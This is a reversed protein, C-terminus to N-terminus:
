TDPSAEATLWALIDDLTARWSQRYNAVTYYGLNTIVEESVPRILWGRRLYDDVIQDWGIAIGRGALAAQIALTYNNFTAGRLEEFKKGHAQFFGNWDLWPQNESQVKLLRRKPLDDISHIPDSNEAFGPSCVPFGCENFLLGVEGDDWNGDGFRIAIEPDTNSLRQEQEVTRVVIEVDPNADQYLTLRPMLWYTALGYNAYITVRNPPASRDIARGAEVIELLGSIVAKYYLEGADTLIVSRHERAFLTAGLADELSKVQRSIAPQSVNLERAAATFSGLRVSAEFALLSRLPPLARNLNEM